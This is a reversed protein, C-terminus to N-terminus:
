PMEVARERSPSRLQGRSRFGWEGSEEQGAIFEWLIRASSLKGAGYLTCALYYATRYYEVDEMYATLLPNNKTRDVLDKLNTYAFDYRTRLIEEIMVTNQILFAFM